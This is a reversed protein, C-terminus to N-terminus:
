LLSERLGPSQGLSRLARSLRTRVVQNSVGLRTAIEEYELEELIRMDIVERQAPQLDGLAAELPGRAAEAALLEEIRLLDGESAYPLSAGLRGATTSRVARSRWHAGLENRAISWLWGAAEGDSAGRFDARKEFAKAFTEATLELSEQGDWTRHAFFRLIKESMHDYFEAFAPPDERSRILSSGM